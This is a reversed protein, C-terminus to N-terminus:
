LQGPNPAMEQQTPYRAINQHSRNSMPDNQPLMPGGLFQEQQTNSKGFTKPNFGTQPQYVQGLVNPLGRGSNMGMGGQNQNANMGTGVGIRGQTPMVNHAPIEDISMNSFNDANALNINQPPNPRRNIGAYFSTVQGPIEELTEKTLGMRNNKFSRHEVFRVIDRSPKNGYSDTVDADDLMKMKSFDENGVGVIVISMPLHSAQVLLDITQQMDHIVGDTIILFFCYNDPNEAFSKKTEDIVKQFVRSFWTPGSFVVNQLAYNYINFIGELGHVESDETDGTCNFCHSVNPLSLNPYKPKAGFGYVPVMKDADYNLLIEGVSMIADQYPNMTDSHPSYYHLSKPDDADKNSATFDVAIHM